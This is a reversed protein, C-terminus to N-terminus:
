NILQHNRLYKILYPLAFPSIEFLNNANLVIGARVLSQLTTNISESSETHYVTCLQNFDIQKHLLIQLLMLNWDPLLVNPLEISEMKKLDLVNGEVSEINALWMYFSFGVNGDSKSTLKKFLQNQERQKLDKEPKGKWLFSMGGSSHRDMVAQNVENTKLPSVTITALLKSDIDIYQRIHQYFYINCDFLFLHKHGYTKVASLIRELLDVGKTSRTWWLELDEFILTSGEPLDNMIQIYNGDIGTASNLANDFVKESFNVTHLPAPINFVKKDCYVNVVNHMLYSKGSLPDGTFLIAGTRGSKFREIAKRAMEVEVSRNQLPKGPAIHKGLFLQKYYFPLQNELAPNISITDMFDALRNHPNQVSKTRYQYGTIAFLDRAKILLKDIGNNIKEARNKVQNLYKAAGKRTKERLIIGDLTDARSIIIEDNLMKRLLGLVTKTDGNLRVQVTELHEKAESLSEKVKKIIEDSKGEEHEKNQLTFKLLRMANEVKIVESRVENHALQFIDKLKSVLENEILHDSVKRVNIKSPSLDYQSNEFDNIQKPSLVETSDCYKIVSKDVKQIISKILNDVNVANSVGLLKSEFNGLGELSVTDIQQEINRFLALSSQIFQNDIKKASHNVFPTLTKRLRVLQINVLLQNTIYKQNAHWNGPYSAISLFAHKIAKGTREEERNLSRKNIDLKDVDVTISNCFIRGLANLEQLFINKEKKFQISLADRLSDLEIKDENKESWDKLSKNIMFSSLGLVNLKTKFHYLYSNEFHHQVVKAFRIHQSKKRTYKRKLRALKPTDKSNVKLEEQTYVREISIPSLEVLKRVAKVHSEVGLSIAATIKGIRNEIIDELLKQEIELAKEISLNEEAKLREDFLAIYSNWVDFWSDYVRNSFAANLAHIKDDIISIKKDLAAYGPLGLAVTDAREVHLSAFEEGQYKMELLPDFGEDDYFHSSAKLLLTTGMIDLFENTNSIFKKEEGSEIEPINLLILDAEFSNVKVVEYFGKKELENNVVEVEADVRLAELRKRVADEVILKQSNDNNLYLIRVQVNSWDPSALLMRALQLSLDSEQNIENWWIDIRKYQGFGKEKDYDLYLVNYDLVGLKKTMQAFWIPDKTNRAWGMMVTNPEVGSFGYTSAIAEIGKFVNQCEQKRHFISDDYDEENVAQQHKPFLVEANPTEILDFNSIMGQRGAISKSFGILHPRASTGGSFLLINPSWNRKHTSKKGLNKLGVKVVSSWVNQWVDGSGLELQRKTLWLFVLAMILVSILAAALNLQVMLLFTAITGILPFVLSIKLKPRFDPSAWQELFCSLNIFMYAAMYFMAVIEAIVNLEGILIGAEAIIFTLILANRPENDVGVGKGFINPTIKDLSMAQLIRPAGLIGGLASSLTAGWIGLIVLGPVLGFDVLANNNNILEAQPISYRIFMALSIYVILGTAVALMTGWPISKKPDKLDGSMAVGATFGTVAPFFIGFLTSFGVTDGEIHSTDFGKGESTGLFISILSLIIALLVLYQSKIAVSTSIYAITVIVFLAISGIVRLHNTTIEEVDMYDSLVVMASEGFGILYLAISLATAVFLTIGIAGGIPLGLSRSLMYYIGGAKIKKDTAISSVSLGTTVSVIHALVIVGIIAIPAWSNGVVMGLRMYMIVGLITLISPTFVGGFTGFKKGQSM